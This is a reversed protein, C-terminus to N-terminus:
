HNGASSADKHLWSQPHMREGWGHHSTKQNLIQQQEPTLVKYLAKAAVAQKKLAALHKESMQIRHQLREPLAANDDMGPQMAACEAKITDAYRTWAAEQAPQLNLADHLKQLHRDVMEAHKAPDRHEHQQTMGEPPAMPASSDAAYAGSASSTAALAAVVMLSKFYKM